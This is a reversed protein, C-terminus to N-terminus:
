QAAELLDRHKELVALTQKILVESREPGVWQSHLQRDQLMKVREPDDSIAKFAAVLKAWNEPQEDRFKAHVGFGGLAGPVFSGEAGLSAMVEPFSPADWDKVREETFVMLPRLQNASQLSTEGGLMIFDVHGGLLALRIPNGGPYNVIKLDDEEIGLARLFLTLNIFDASGPTNVGISLEGPHERIYAVLDEVTKFPSDLGTAMLVYDQRPLNIFAFDDVEFPADQVMTNVAMYPMPVTVLITHGDPPTQMFFSHALLTNGGPRNEVVVPQGLEEQLFTAMMRAMLDTGGGPAFAVIMNIPRNPYDEQALSAQPVAMLGAVGLAIGALLRRCGRLGRLSAKKAHFRM